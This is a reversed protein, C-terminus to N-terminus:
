AWTAYTTMTYFAQQGELCLVLQLPIVSTDGPNVLMIALQERSVEVVGPLQLFTLQMIGKGLKCPQGKSPQVLGWM